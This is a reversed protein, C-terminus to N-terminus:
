GARPLHLDRIPGSPAHTRKNYTYGALLTATGRSTSTVSVAVPGSTTSHPATVTIASTSQVQTTISVTQTGFQVSVIDVGNGLETGSLVVTQDM